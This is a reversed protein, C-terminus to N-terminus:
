GLLALRGQMALLVGALLLAAVAGLVIWFAATGERREHMTALTRRMPRRIETTAESGVDTGSRLLGKTRLDRLADALETASAYRDAPRKFLARTIVKELEPGVDPRKARLRPPAETRIKGLMVHIPGAFPLEGTLMEYMTIGLAWVDVRGDISGQEAAVQEPAMYAPTGPLTGAATIRTGSTMDKVIGFDLVKVLPRERGRERSLFLNAPKLDRHVLGMAHAEAVAELADLILDVVEGVPLPGSAAIREEVSEGELYEMALFLAGDDLQGVEFVKAVHETRLRSMSEAERIFRGRLREDAAHVPLILKLAVKRKLLQDFAEVVVGMAGRGLVREIRYRGAVVTGANVTVLGPRWRRGM